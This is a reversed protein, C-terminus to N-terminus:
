RPRHAAARSAAPSDPIELERLRKLVGDAEDPPFWHAYLSRGAIRKEPEAFYKNYEVETKQFSVCLLVSPANVRLNMREPGILEFYLGRRYFVAHRPNVEIVGYEYGRVGYAYLYATHFLAGLVSKSVTDGDVALRTFECLRTGKTRYSLLEGRYLEDASLGKPSDLRLSLTGVIANNEYAVFTRLNPEAKLGQVQYGRWAYRQKILTGAHKGYTRSRALRIKFVGPVVGPDDPLPQVHERTLNRLRLQVGGFVTLGEAREPRLEKLGQSHPKEQEGALRAGHAAKKPVQPVSKEKRDRSVM